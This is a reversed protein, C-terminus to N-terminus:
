NINGEYKRFFFLFKGEAFRRILQRAHVQKPSQKLQWEQCQRATNASIFFSIMVIKNSLKQSQKKATKVKISRDIM